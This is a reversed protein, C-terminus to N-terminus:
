RKGRVLVAIHRQLRREADTKQFFGWVEETLDWVALVREEPTGQMYGRDDADAHSRHIRVHRRNVQNM